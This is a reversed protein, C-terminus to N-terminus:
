IYYGFFVEGSIATASGTAEIEIVMGTSQTPALKGGAGFNTVEDPYYDFVGGPLEDSAEVITVGNWKVTFRGEIAGTLNRVYLYPYQYGAADKGPREPNDVDNKYIVTLVAKSATPSVNNINFIVGANDYYTVEADVFSYPTITWSAANGINARVCNNAFDSLSIIEPANKAVVKPSLWLTRVPPTPPAPAAPIANQQSITLSGVQDTTLATVQAPTFAAIEKTTFATLQETTLNHIAAPIIAAVDTPEMAALQSTTLASVEATTMGAVAGSTLAVIQSTSLAAVAATSLAAVQWASLAAVQNVTLTNVQDTSIVALQGPLLAAVASINLAAIQPGTLAAVAATNLSAVQNATLAAVQAHTLTGIQATSLAALQSTTLASIAYKNLEALQTTSLAAIQQTTLAITDTLVMSPNINYMLPPALDDLCELDLILKKVEYMISDFASLLMEPTRVVIEIINTRYYSSGQAPTDELFDELQTPTCVAAFTDDTTGKAFNRIRQNVFIKNPMNEANVAELVLKYSSIDPVEITSRKLIQINKAM